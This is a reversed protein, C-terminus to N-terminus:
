LNNKSLNNHIKFIWKRKTIEEGIKNVMDTLFNEDLIMQGNEDALQLLTFFMLYENKSLILNCEQLTLKNIPKKCM